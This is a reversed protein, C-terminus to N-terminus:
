SEPCAWAKPDFANQPYWKLESIAYNKDDSGPKANVIELEVEEPLDEEQQDDDESREELADPLRPGLRSGLARRRPLARAGSVRHHDHARHM